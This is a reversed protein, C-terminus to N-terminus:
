LTDTPMNEFPPPPNTVAQPPLESETWHLEKLEPELNLEKIVTFAQHLSGCSGQLHSLQGNAFHLNELEPLFDGHPLSTGWSPFVCIREFAVQDLLDPFARKIQRKIKKLAQGLIESDEADGDEMFSIWQSQNQNQFQGLCPGLEDPTTSDLIFLSFPETVIDKSHILDLGVMTWYKIKAYRSLSKPNWTEQDILDRLQNLPGAFIYQDATIKRHGNVVVSKVKGEAVELRTVYSKTQVEAKCNRELLLGWSCAQPLTDLFHSSLLGSIQDIFKPPRDGFGLFPRFGSAEYTKPTLERKLAYVPTGCLNALFKLAQHNDETAPILRLGNAILGSPTEILRHSGELRDLRELLLVKAGKQSLAQAVSLGSLGAGIVVFEYHM